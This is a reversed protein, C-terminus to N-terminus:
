CLPLQAGREEWTTTLRCSTATPCVTLSPRPGYRETGLTGRVTRLKTALSIIPSRPPRRHTLSTHTAAAIAQGIAQGTQEDSSSVTFGYSVQGRGASAM